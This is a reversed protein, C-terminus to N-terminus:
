ALVFLLVVIVLGSVILALWVSRGFEARVPMRVKAILRAMVYCQGAYSLFIRWASGAPGTDVFAIAGGVVALMIMQEGDSSPARFFLEVGRRMLAFALLTLLNAGNFAWWARPETRLGALLLGASLLLLFVGWHVVAAEDEKLLLACGLWGVAYLGFQFAVLWLLPSITTADVSSM